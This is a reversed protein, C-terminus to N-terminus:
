KNTLNNALRESDYRKSLLNKKQMFVIACAPKWCWGLHSLSCFLVIKNQKIRKDTYALVRSSANFLLESRVLILLNCISFM